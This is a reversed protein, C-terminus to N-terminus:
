KFSPFLLKENLIYNFQVSLLWCKHIMHAKHQNNLKICEILELHNRLHKYFFTRRVMCMSLAWTLGIM